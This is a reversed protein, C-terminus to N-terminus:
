SEEVHPLTVWTAVALLNLFSAVSFADDSRFNIFRSLSACNFLCHHDPRLVSKNPAPVAFSIPKRQGEVVFDIM